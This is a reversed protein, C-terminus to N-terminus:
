QRDSVDLPCRIKDNMAGYTGFFQEKLPDTVETADSLRVFLTKLEELSGGYISVFRTAGFLLTPLGCGTRCPSRWSATGSAPSSKTRSFPLWSIRPQRIRLRRRPSTEALVPTASNWPRSANAM